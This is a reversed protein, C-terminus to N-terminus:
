RGGNLKKIQSADLLGNEGRATQGSGTSGQAETRSRYGVQVKGPFTNVASPGQAPQSSSTRIPLQQSAGPAAVPAAYSSYPSLTSSTTYGARSSSTTHPVGQQMHSEYTTANASQRLRLM